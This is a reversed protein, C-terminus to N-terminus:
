PPHDRSVCHACESNSIVMSMLVGQVPLLVCYVWFTGPYGCPRINFQIERMLFRLQNLNM